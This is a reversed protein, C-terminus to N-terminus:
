SYYPFAVIHIFIGIKSDEHQLDNEDGLLNGCRRVFHLNALVPLSNVMSIVSTLLQIRFIHSSPLHESFSM